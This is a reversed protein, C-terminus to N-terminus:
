NAIAAAFGDLAKLANRPTDTYDRLEKVGLAQLIDDVGLAYKEAAHMFFKAIREPSEIWTPDDMPGNSEAEAEKKEDTVGVVEGGMEVAAAITAALAPDM